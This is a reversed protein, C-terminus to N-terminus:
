SYQPPNFNGEGPSDEWVLYWVWTEQMAPLYEVVSGGAFGM